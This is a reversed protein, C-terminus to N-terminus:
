RCRPIITPLDDPDVVVGQTYNKRPRGRKKAVPQVVPLVSSEVSKNVSISPPTSAPKQLSAPKPAKSKAKRARGGAPFLGPLSINQARTHSRTVPFSHEDRSVPQAGINMCGNSMDINMYENGTLNERSTLFSIRDTKSNDASFRSLYDSIFMKTVAIHEITFSYDSLEELYKQIPNTKAQKRSNYILTLASHDMVVIFHAHKLLYQFHIISKKLGCLEIESSSYRCAADPMVASFFAIVRWDGNQMQYLVSGVFKASSDCELIVKGTSDSLCLVPSKVILKKILEFNSTHEATWFKQIDPSKHKGAGKGKAYPLM